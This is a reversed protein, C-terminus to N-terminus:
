KTPKFLNASIHRMYWMGTLAKLSYNAVMWLLTMALILAKPEIIGDTFASSTLYPSLLEMMAVNTTGLGGPTIPITGIFFVLPIVGLVTGIDVSANFAYVMGYMGLIIVIHIPARYLAIKVYDTFRAKQFTHFLPKNHVWQFLKTKFLHSVLPINWKRWFALHAVFLLAAGLAVMRVFSELDIGAYHYDHLFSGVFALAIIWYFDILMIMGFMGFMELLPVNKTRKLYYAFAAQSAPYNVTMVLYTAGRAPLLDRTSVPYHFLTLARGTAFCDLFFLIAFYAIALLAFYGLHALRTADLIASLSYHSILYGFIAVAVAWPAIKKILSFLLNQSKNMKHAVKKFFCRYRICIPVRSLSRIKTLCSKRNQLRPFPRLRCKGGNGWEKERM